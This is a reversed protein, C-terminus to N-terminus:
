APEGAARRRAAQLLLSRARELERQHAFGTLWLALPILAFAAARTVFGVAGHTPLLVDGAAAIGGVVVTL